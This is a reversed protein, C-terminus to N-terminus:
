LSLSPLSMWIGFLVNRSVLSTSSIRRSREECIESGNESTIEKSSNIDNRRWQLSDVLVDGDPLCRPIYRARTVAYQFLCPSNVLDSGVSIGIWCFAEAMGWTM